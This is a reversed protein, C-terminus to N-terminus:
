ILLEGNGGYVCYFLHFDISSYFPANSSFNKSYDIGKKFTIHGPIHNCSVVADLANAKQFTLDIFLGGWSHLKPQCM